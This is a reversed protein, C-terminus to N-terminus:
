FTFTQITCQEELTMVEHEKYQRALNEKETLTMMTLPDMRLAPVPRHVKHVTSGSQLPLVPVPPQTNSSTGLENQPVDDDEDSDMPKHKKAKPLDRPKKVEATNKKGM